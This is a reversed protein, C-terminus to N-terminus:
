PLKTGGSSVRAKAVQRTVPHFQALLQVANMLYQFISTDALQVRHGAVDQADGAATHNLGNDVSLLPRIPQRGPGFARQAALSGLQPQREAAVDGFVM